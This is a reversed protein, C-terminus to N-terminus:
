GLVAYFGFIRKCARSTESLRQALFNHSRFGLKKLANSIKSWVPHLLCDSSVVRPQLGCRKLGNTKKSWVSNRASASLRFAYSEHSHLTFKIRSRPGNLASPQISAPSSSQDAGRRLVHDLGISTLSNRPWRKQRTSPSISRWFM